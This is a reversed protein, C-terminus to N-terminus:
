NKIIKQKVVWDGQSIAIIYEGMELHTVDLKITSNVAHQTAHQVKRGRLDYVDIAYVDNSKVKFYLLSKTPNPYALFKYENKFEGLGLPEFVSIPIEFINSFTTGDTVQVNVKLERIAPDNLSITKKNKIAYKEDELIIM